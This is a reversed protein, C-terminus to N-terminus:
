ALRQLGGSGGQVAPLSGLASAVVLSKDGSWSDAVAKANAGQHVQLVSVVTEALSNVDELLITREPLLARWNAIVHDRENGYSRDCVGENVLVVHFVEWNRQAMALVQEATIDAELAFGLREAEARSVGDHNPEDGITFLYGKANRKRAADINTKMAAFLHALSYSEGGNAGGGHELWLDSVQTGLCIDAEFQTVQLPAQDVKADGIAMVMIHPDPVPERAYIEACLTNLGERMLTDAIVGMSGTVDSALIIPTANPNHESDFSERVVIKAPDFADKLARSTFVQTQSKGRVNTKAYNDWDGPSWRGNGM